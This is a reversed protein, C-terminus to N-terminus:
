TDVGGLRRPRERKVPQQSGNLDAPTLLQSVLKSNGNKRQEESFRFGDFQKPYRRADLQTAPRDIPPSRDIPHIRVHIKHTLKNLYFIIIDDRPAGCLNVPTAPALAVNSRSIAPALGSGAAEWKRFDPTRYAGGPEAPGHDEPELSPELPAGSNLFDDYSNRPM